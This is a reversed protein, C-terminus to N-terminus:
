VPSFVEKKSAIAWCKSKGSIWLIRFRIEKGIPFGCMIIILNMQYCEKVQEGPPKGITGYLGDSFLIFKEGERLHDVATIRRISDRNEDYVSAKVWKVNKSVGNFIVSIEEDTCFVYIYSAEKSMVDRFFVTKIYPYSRDKGAWLRFLLSFIGFQFFLVSKNASINSKVVINVMTWSIFLRNRKSDKM